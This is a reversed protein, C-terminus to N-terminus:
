PWDNKEFLYNETKSENKLEKILLEEINELNTKTKGAQAVNASRTQNKEEESYEENKEDSLVACEETYEEVM